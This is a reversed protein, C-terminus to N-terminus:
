GRKPLTVVFETFRHQRSRINVSGGMTQVQQKIISLGMGRGAHEGTAQQTSFGPTAMLEFLQQGTIKRNQVWKKIQPNKCNKIISNVDIGRGDDQLSLTIHDHNDRISLDVQGRTPKGKRTREAPIEIGHAIANRLLQTVVTLLQKQNPHTALLNMGKCNFTVEKHTDTAIAQAYAALKKPLTSQKAKDALNAPPSSYRRLLVWHKQFQRNTDTFLKLLTELAFAKNPQLAIVCEELNHFRKALEALQLVACDGKLQHFAQLLPQQHKEPHSIDQRLQRLTRACKKLLREADIFFDYAVSTELKTLREILELEKLTRRKYNELQQAANRDKLVPLFVSLVSGSVGNNSQLTKCHIQYATTRPHLRLTVEDPAVETGAQKKVSSLSQLHTKWRDIEASNLHRMFLAALPPQTESAYSVDMNLAPFKALVVNFKADTVVIGTDGVTLTEVILSEGRAANQRLHRAATASNFAIWCAYLFPLTSLWLSIEGIRQARKRAAQLGAIQETLFPKINDRYREAKEGLSSLIDQARHLDSGEEPADNLETMLLTLDNQQLTLERHQEKSLPQFGAPLLTPAPRSLRELTGRWYGDLTLQLLHSSTDKSLSNRHPRATQWRLESLSALHLRYIGVRTDIRQNLHAGWLSASLLLAFVISSILLLATTKWTATAPQAPIRSSSEM